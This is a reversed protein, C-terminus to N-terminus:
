SYDELMLSGPMVKLEGIWSFDKDCATCQFGFWRGYTDDCEGSDTLQLVKGCLPCDPPHATPDPINEWETEGCDLCEVKNPDTKRINVHLCETPTTTPNTM